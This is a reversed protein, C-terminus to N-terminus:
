LFGKAIIFQHHLYLFNVTRISKSLQASFKLQKNLSFKHLSEYLIKSEVKVSNQLNSITIKSKKEIM